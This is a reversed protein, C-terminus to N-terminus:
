RGDQPGFTRVVGLVLDQLDLGAEVEGDDAGEIMLAAGPGCDDSRSAQSPDEQIEFDLVRTSRTLEDRIQDHLVYNSGARRWSVIGKTQLGEVLASLPHSSINTAGYAAPFAICAHLLQDSPAAPLLDCAAILATSSLGAALM